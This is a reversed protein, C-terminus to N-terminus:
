PPAVPLGPCPLGVRLLAFGPLRVEALLRGPDPGFVAWLLAGARLSRSASDCRAVGGATAPVFPEASVFFDAVRFFDAPLFTCRLFGDGGFFFDCGLRRIM